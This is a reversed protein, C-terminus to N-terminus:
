KWEVFGNAGDFLKLLQCGHICDSIASLYIFVGEGIIMGDGREDVWPRLERKWIIRCSHCAKFESQSILSIDLSCTDKLPGLCKPCSRLMRNKSIRGLEDKSLDNLTLAQHHRM